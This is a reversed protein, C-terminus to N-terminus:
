AVLMAKWVSARLWLIPEERSNTGLKRHRIILYGDPSSAGDHEPPISPTDYISKLFAAVRPADESQFSRRREFVLTVM